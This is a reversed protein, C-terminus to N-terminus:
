WKVGPDGWGVCPQPQPVTPQSQQQADFPNWDWSLPNMGQIGKYIEYAIYGVIVVGAITIATNIAGMIAEGGGENYLGM